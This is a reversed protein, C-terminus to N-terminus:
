KRNDQLAKKLPDILEDMEGDLAAEFCLRLGALIGNYYAQEALEKKSLIKMDDKGNQWVADFLEDAIQDAFIETIERIIMRKRAEERKPSTKLSDERVGADLLEICLDCVHKANKYKESEHDPCSCEDVEGCYMCTFKMVNVEKMM